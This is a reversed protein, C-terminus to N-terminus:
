IKVKWKCDMEWAKEPIRDFQCNKLLGYGKAVLEYNEGVLNVYGTESNDPLDYYINKFKDKTVECKITGIRKKDIMPKLTKLVQLDMGQIDSIYDDIYDIGNEKCFNLLNICPVKITKIMAIDNSASVNGQRWKENFNGVSSSAGNNNSSINFEIEGDYDAVAVNYLHIHRHESFKNNLKRYRDPNAEFVYCKRYGPYLINLEGGPDAGVLFLINKDSMIRYKIAFGLYLLAKQPKMIVKKIKNM